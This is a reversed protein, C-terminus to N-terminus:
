KAVRPSVGTARGIRAGIEGLREILEPPEHIEFDSGIM